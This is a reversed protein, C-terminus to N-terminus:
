IIEVLGFTVCIGFFFFFFFFFEFSWLELHTYGIERINPIYM